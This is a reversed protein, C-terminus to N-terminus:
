PLSTAPPFAILPAGEQTGPEVTILLLTAPGTDGAQYSAETGAELCLGQGPSLTPDDALILGGTEPTFLYATGNEVSTALEGSSLAMLEVGGISHAPLSLGPALSVHSVTITLVTSPLPVALGLALTASASIISSSSSARAEPREVYPPTIAFALAVAPTDTTSWAYVLSGPALLIAEGPALTAQEGPALPKAAQSGRLLTAPSRSGPNLHVNLSGQEIM